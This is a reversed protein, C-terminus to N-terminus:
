KFSQFILDRKIWLDERGSRCAASLVDKNDNEPYNKLDNKELTKHEKYFKQLPDERCKHYIIDFNVVKVKNMYHDPNDAMDKYDLWKYYTVLDRDYWPLDSYNKQYEFNYKAQLYQPKRSM